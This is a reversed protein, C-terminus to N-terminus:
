DLIKVMYLNTEHNFLQDGQKQTNNGFFPTIRLKCNTM